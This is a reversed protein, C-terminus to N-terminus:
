GAPSPKEKFWWVAVPVYIITWALMLAAFFMYYEAGELKSTGDDNQIFTNVAATFLNGISVSMMFIAMTMSKLKPPAQSYSFDLCTISVLVEGATILVYALIQWGINPKGGATIQSEIWAIVLFSIACLVFGIGLKRLPTTKFFRGMMPYIVYAFLPTLIMILVPNVTQVQAPLWEFGLFHLDMKQSQLVWSSGTQDYLAWFMAVFFYIIGLRGLAMLGERNFTERIISVGAPPIHAFSNRGQWFVATAILMLLGPTGFAIHPGVNELLWPTLLMSIFAGANISLYFWSFVKERLHQNKGCFQDGVHASVCPKIGGSGIAILTLGVSLGVRTDDLALALHGLCYVLSLVMITKYKGLFSDAIIAGLLPFFYVASTFMHYWAKADEENMVATNGSSDLLYKTMFVVLIGKMGYFSFREAAESGVIQPIGPPMGATDLPRNRYNPM